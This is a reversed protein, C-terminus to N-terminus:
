RLLPRWGRIQEDSYFQTAELDGFIWWCGLGTATDVTWFGVTLPLAPPTDDQALWLIVPTGDRPVANVPAWGGSLLTEAM